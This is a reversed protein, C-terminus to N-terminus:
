AALLQQGGGGSDATVVNSYGSKDSGREAYVRYSVQVGPVADAVNYRVKTTSDLYVWEGGPQMHEIVFNTGEANGARGWQLKNTVNRPNCILNSPVFVPVTSGGEDHPVIGLQLLLDDSVNGAAYWGNVFVRITALAAVRTQNKSSTTALTAAAAAVKDSLATQFNSKATTIQTPEAPDLGLPGPNAAAVTNFNTLWASLEDDTLSFYNNPM